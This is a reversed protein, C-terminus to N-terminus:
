ELHAVWFTKAIPPQLPAASRAFDRFSPKFAPIEAALNDPFLPCGRAVGDTWSGTCDAVRNTNGIGVCFVLNILSFTKMSKWFSTVSDSM